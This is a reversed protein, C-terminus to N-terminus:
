SHNSKTQIRSFSNRSFHVPIINSPSGPRQHVKKRKPKVVKACRGGKGYKYITETRPTIHHSSNEVKPM